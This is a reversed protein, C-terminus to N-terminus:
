TYGHFLGIMVMRKGKANKYSFSQNWQKFWDRKMRDRICMKDEQFGKKMLVRKCEQLMTDYSVRM